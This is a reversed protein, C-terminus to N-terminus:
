CDGSCYYRAHQTVVCSSEPVRRLVISRRLHTVLNVIVQFKLGRFIGQPQIRDNSQTSLIEQARGSHHQGLGDSLRDVTGPMDGMEADFELVHQESFGLKLRLAIVTAEEIRGPTLVREVFTIQLSIQRPALLKVVPDIFAVERGLVDCAPM